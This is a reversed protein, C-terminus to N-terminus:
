YLMSTFSQDSTLLRICNMDGINPWQRLITAPDLGATPKKPCIAFWRFAFRPNVM